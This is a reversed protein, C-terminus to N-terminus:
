SYLKQISYKKLEFIMNSMDIFCFCVEQRFFAGAPAQMCGCWANIHKEQLRREDKRFQEEVKELVRHYEKILDDRMILEDNHAKRLEEIQKKYSETRIELVDVIAQSNRRTLIWVIVTWAILFPVQWYEKLWLWLKKIKTKFLIWAM